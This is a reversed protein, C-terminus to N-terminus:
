KGKPKKEPLRIMEMRLVKVDADVDLKMRIGRLERCHRLLDRAATQRTKLDPLEVEIPKEGKGVYVKATAHLNEKSMLLADNEYDALRDDIAIRMAKRWEEPYESPYHSITSVSKGIDEAAEARTMGNVKLIAVGRLIERTKATVEPM